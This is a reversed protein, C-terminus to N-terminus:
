AAAPVAQQSAYCVAIRQRGPGIPEARIITAEALSRPDIVAHEALVAVRVSEGIAFPRPTAIEILAGGVSVDTTRAFSLGSPSEGRVVRVPRSLRIRPHSRREFRLNNTATSVDHTDSQRLPSNLSYAPRALRHHQNPHKCSVKCIEVM